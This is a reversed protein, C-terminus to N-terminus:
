VFTKPTSFIPSLCSNPSGGLPKGVAGRWLALLSSPAVLHTRLYIWWALVLTCSRKRQWGQRWSGFYGSVMPSSRWCMLACPFCSRWCSFPNPSTQLQRSPNNQFTVGFDVKLLIKPKKIVPCKKQCNQYSAKISMPCNFIWSRRVNNEMRSQNFCTLFESHSADSHNPKM